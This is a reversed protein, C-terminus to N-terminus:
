FLVIGSLGFSKWAVNGYGIGKLPIQYFPQLEVQTNGIPIDFGLSFKLHAGFAFARDEIEAYHEYEQGYLNSLYSSYQQEIIYYSKLGLGANLWRLPQYRVELPIEVMKCTGNTWDLSWGYPPDYDLTFESGYSSYVINGYNVGLGVSMQQIPFYRAGFGFRMGKQLNRDLQTSAVEGGFLFYYQFRDFSQKEPQIRDDSNTERSTDVEAVVYVDDEIEDAILCTDAISPTPPAIPVEEEAIEEQAEPYVEMANQSNEFKETSKATSQSHARATTSNHDDTRTPASAISASEVHKVIPAATNNAVSETELNVTEPSEELTDLVVISEEPITTQVNIEEVPVRGSQPLNFEWPWYPMSLIFIGVLLYGYFQGGKRPLAYDLRSELANWDKEEFPYDFEEARNRFLEEM